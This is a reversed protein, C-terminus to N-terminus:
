VFYDCLCCYLLSLVMIFLGIFELVVVVVFLYGVLVGSSCRMWLDMM